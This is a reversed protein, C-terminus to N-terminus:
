KDSMDGSIRWEGTTLSGTGCWDSGWYRKERRNPGISGQRYVAERNTSTINPANPYRISEPDIGKVREVEAILEQWLSTQMQLIELPDGAMLSYWANVFPNTGDTLATTGLELIEEIYSRNLFVLDERYTAILALDSKFKCTVMYELRTDTKNTIYTDGNNAEDLEFFDSIPTATPIPTPTPTPV